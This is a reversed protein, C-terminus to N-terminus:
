RGSPRASVSVTAWILLKQFVADYLHEGSVSILGGPEILLDMTKYIAILPKIPEVCFTTVDVGFVPVCARFELSPDPDNYNRVLPSACLLRDECVM